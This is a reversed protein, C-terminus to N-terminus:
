NLGLIEARLVICHSIAVQTQLLIYADIKYM